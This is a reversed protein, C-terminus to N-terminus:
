LPIIDPRADTPTTISTAHFNHNRFRPNPTSATPSGTDPTDKTDAEPALLTQLKARARHILVGAANSTIDLETGIEAYSLDEFFRLCFAESQQHPLQALADRLRQTLESSQAHDLPSPDDAALLGIDSPQDLHDRRRIRSRLRDLARATALKRLLGPWNRIPQRSECEMASIFVDQFCDSADAHNGLLRWARQWVLPGHEAIIAEWDTVRALREDDPCLPTSAPPSM